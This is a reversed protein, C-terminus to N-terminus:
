YEAFSLIGSLIRVQYKVKKLLHLKVSNEWYPKVTNCLKKGIKLCEFFSEM